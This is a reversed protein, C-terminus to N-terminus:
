HELKTTYSINVCNYLLYNSVLESYFFVKNIEQWADYYLCKEHVLEDMTQRFHECELRFKIKHAFETNSSWFVFVHRGQIILSVLM